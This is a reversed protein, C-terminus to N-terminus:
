TDTTQTPETAALIADVKESKKTAGGLDIGANAAHAELDTVTMAELEARAMRESMVFKTGLRLAARLGPGPPVTDGAAYREGACAFDCVAVFTKPRPKSPM